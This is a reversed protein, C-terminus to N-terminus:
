GPRAPAEAAGDGQRCATNIPSRIGVPCTAARQMLLPFFTGNEKATESVHLGLNSTLLRPHNARLDSNSGAKRGRPLFPMTSGNFRTPFANSPPLPICSLLTCCHLLAQKSVGHNTPKPHSGVKTCLSGLSWHAGPTPPRQQMGPARQSPQAPLLDTPHEEALAQKEQFGCSGSNRVQTNM